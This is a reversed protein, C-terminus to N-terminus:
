FSYKINAYFSRGETAYGYVSQYDKDFINKANITLKTDKLLKTDFNLNWVTYNGTAVKSAIPFGGDTDVRDGVYQANIGFHM